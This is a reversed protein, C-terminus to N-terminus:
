KVIRNVIKQALPSIILSIPFAVVTGLGFSKMWRWFFGDSFGTNIWTFFLAMFFGMAIAMITAYILPACKKNM